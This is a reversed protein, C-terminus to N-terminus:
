LLLAGPRQVAVRRVTTLDEEGCEDESEANESVLESGSQSVERRRGGRGSTPRPRTARRRKRRGEDQALLDATAGLARQLQTILEPFQMFSAALMGTLGAFQTLEEKGIDGDNLMRM